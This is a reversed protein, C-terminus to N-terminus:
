SCAAISGRLVDRMLAFLDHQPDSKMAAWYSFYGPADQVTAGRGHALDNRLGTLRSIKEAYNEDFARV